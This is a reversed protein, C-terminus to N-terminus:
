QGSVYEAAGSIAHGPVRVRFKGAQRENASQLQILDLARRASKKAQFFGVDKGKALPKAREFQGPPMEMSPTRLTRGRVTLKLMVREDDYISLISSQVQV